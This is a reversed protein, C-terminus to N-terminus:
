HTQRAIAVMHLASARDARRATGDSSEFAVIVAHRRGKTAQALEQWGM